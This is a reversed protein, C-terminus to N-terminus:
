RRMPVYILCTRLEDSLQLEESQQASRVLLGGMNSM